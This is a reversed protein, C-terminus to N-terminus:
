FFKLFVENSFLNGKDTLKLTGNENIMLGLDIAEAISEKFVEHISLGFRHNFSEESIGESLRLGLMITESMELKSEIYEINEVTPMTNITQSPLRKNYNKNPDIHNLRKIYQRPSNINNFRTKHVYSHGGPGMGIYQKNRWYTLNHLSNLGPKSWNSIEYQDYVTNELIKNATTYMDAALDQDPSPINASDISKKMPTGPELTLCYLSLHDPNIEIAQNLTDEWQTLTQRPLGYMFDLSINNFGAERAKAFATLADESSHRRGLITLLNDDLSQVGFSLRNIGTKRLYTLKDTDIDNPNCEITIEPASEIQFFKYVQNLISELHGEPLYSPTGGGFFITRVSLDNLSDGWYHIESNIAKVYDPILSEIGSYTNFDCYPCKTQCFPIHIYISLSDDQIEPNIMM